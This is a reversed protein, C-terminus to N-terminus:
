KKLSTPHYENFGNFLVVIMENKGPPITKLILGDSYIKTGMPRNIKDTEKVTMESESHTLTYDKDKILVVGNASVQMVNSINRGLSLYADDSGKRNVQFCLIFHNEPDCPNPTTVEIKKPLPLPKPKFWNFPNWSIFLLLFIM